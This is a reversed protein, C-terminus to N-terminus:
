KRKKRKLAGEPYRGHFRNHLTRWHVGCRRAIESKDPYRVPDYWMLKAQEDSIALPKKEPIFTHGLAMKVERATRAAGRKRELTARDLFEVADAVEESWLVSKGSSADLIAHGTRALRHLVGRIDDRGVGLSGPTAVVVVDGKRLQKMAVERDELEADSRRYKQTLDDEYIQDRDTLKVAKHILKLQEDRTPGSKTLLLYVAKRAM